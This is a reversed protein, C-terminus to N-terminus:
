MEHQRLKERYRVMEDAKRNFKKDNDATIRGTEGLPARYRFMSKATTNPTGGNHFPFARKKTKSAQEPKPSLLGALAKSYPTESDYQAKFKPFNGARKAVRLVSGSRSTLGDDKRRQVESPLQKKYYYYRNTNIESPPKRTM